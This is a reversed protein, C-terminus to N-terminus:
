TYASLSQMRPGMKKSFFAIPHDDLSLVASGGLGSADITAAFMKSFDPLTLTPLTTMARKLALFASDTHANWKFHHTQLLDTLLSAISAYNHVFRHYYGTFGLFGRLKTITTPPPWDM